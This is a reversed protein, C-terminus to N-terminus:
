NNKRVANSYAALLRAVEDIQKALVDTNGYNLDNSLILYYRCEELPFLGALLNPEVIPSKLKVAILSDDM